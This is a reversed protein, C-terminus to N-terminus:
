CIGPKSGRKLLKRKQETNVYYTHMILYLKPLKLHFLYTSLINCLHWTVWFNSYSILYYISNYQYKSILQISYCFLFRKALQLSMFSNSSWGWMVCLLIIRYNNWHWGFIKRFGKGPARSLYTHLNVNEILHSVKM